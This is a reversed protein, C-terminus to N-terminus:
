NNALLVTVSSGLLNAAALDAKGDGNFDAAVLGAPGAFGASGFSVAAQFSGDGNGFLVSVNGDSRNVTALDLHGDGNFDGAVVQVPTRGVNYLGLLQFTGDGNGRLVTVTNGTVNAVALDPRG